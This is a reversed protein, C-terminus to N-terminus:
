KLRMHRNYALFMEWEKRFNFERAQWRSRAIEQIYSFWAAEFANKQYAKPNTWLICSMGYLDTFTETAADIWPMTVKGLGFNRWDRLNEPPRYGYKQALEYLETGPFPTTLFFPSIVARSNAARLEDAFAMNALTEQANGGPLGDHVVLRAPDELPRNRRQRAPRRRAQQGQPDDRLIRPSVHEVGVFLEECMGDIEGILKDDVNEARIATHFSYGFKATLKALSTIREHDFGIEDALM